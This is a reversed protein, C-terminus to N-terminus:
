YKLAQIIAESLKRQGSQNPHITDRYDDRAELKCDIIVIGKKMAYDRFGREGESVTNVESENRSRYILMYKQKWPHSYLEDLKKLNYCAAASRIDDGWKPTDVKTNVTSMGLMKRVRPILYRNVGDFLACCPKVGPLAIDKSVNSGATIAPDDEWLDHSNVEVIVIDNTRVLEDYKKFYAAYNGSGWSGASVNLVQIVVHSPDIKNQLITTALDKHDTLVGGNVVSDGVVFIRRKPNTGKLTFDCRMSFDNYVISNGFRNCEQNPAFLYDIEKDGISLPPDGLGLVFRAFLEGLLLLVLIAVVIISKMSKKKM